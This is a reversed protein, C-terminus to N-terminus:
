DMSDYLDLYGDDYLYAVWFGQGEFFLEWSSGAYDMRYASTVKANNFKGGTITINDNGQAEWYIYAGDREGNAELYNYIDIGAQGNDGNIINAVLSEGKDEEEGDMVVTWGNPIGDDGYAEWTADPNKVFTGTPSVDYVWSQLYNRLEREPTLFLAKIYNLANCSYFMFKYCSDKLEKAPLEPATKLARCDSFMSRYCGDSLHRAPLFKPSVSQIGANFEFLGGFVGHYESIDDNLDADDGFILSLCNGLLNCKGTIQVRGMTQGKELTCKFSYLGKNSLALIVGKKLNRWSSGDQTYQVDRSTFTVEVDEQLAEITMYKNIDFMSTSAFRRRIM